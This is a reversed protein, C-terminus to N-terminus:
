HSTELDRLITGSALGIRVHSLACAHVAAHFRAKTMTELLQAELMDQTEALEAEYARMNLERNEEADKLSTRATELNQRAAELRLAEVEIQTRIGQEVM